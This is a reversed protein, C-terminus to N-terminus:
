GKVKTLHKYKEETVIECVSGRASFDTFGEVLMNKFSELCDKNTSFKVVAASYPERYSTLHLIISNVESDYVDALRLNDGKCVALEARKIDTLTGNSLLVRVMNFGGIYKVNYLICIFEITLSIILKIFKYFKHSIEFM